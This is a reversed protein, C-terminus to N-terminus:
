LRQVPSIQSSFSFFIREFIKGLISTLTIPRYSTVEVANKEPKLIPIIKARRWSEPVITNTWLNNFLDLIKHINKDSLQSMKKIVQDIDPSKNRTKALANQFERFSFPRNLNNDDLTESYYASFDLPIQEDLARKILSAAIANVQAIPVTLTIGSSLVLNSISPSGDKNLLAKVIRFAQHSSAAEQCTKEWFNHKCSKVYKRLVAAM